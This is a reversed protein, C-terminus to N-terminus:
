KRRMEGSLMSRMSAATNSSNFNKSFFRLTALLQRGETESASQVTMQVFDVIDFPSHPSFVGLTDVHDFLLLVGVMSHVFHAADASPMAKKPLLAPLSNTREVMHKLVKYIVLLASTLHSIALGRNSQHWRGIFREAGSVLSCLMPAPRALFLSIQDSQHALLLHFGGITGDLSSMRRFLSFANQLAPTSAKLMDYRVVLALVKAFNKSLLQEVQFYEEADSDDLSVSPSCLEEFLCPVLKEIRRGLEFQRKVMKVFRQVKETRTRRKEEAEEEEGNEECNVPFEKHLNDGDKRKFQELEEVVANGDLICERLENLLVDLEPQLCDGHISKKRISLKPSFKTGVDAVKSGISSTPLHLCLGNLCRQHRNFHRNMPHRKAVICNKILGSPM